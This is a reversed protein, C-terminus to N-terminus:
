RRIEFSAFSGTHEEWGVSYKDVEAYPQSETCLKIVAEIAEKDGEFIAEVTGNPLNRVWGMVEAKVAFERTHARFFVGQVKGEFIVHARSLM